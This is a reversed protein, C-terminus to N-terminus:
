TAYVPISDGVEGGNDDRNVVGDEDGRFLETASKDEAFVGFSNRNDGGLCRLCATTIIIIIIYVARYCSLSDRFLYYIRTVWM